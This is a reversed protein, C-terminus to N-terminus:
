SVNEWLAENIEELLPELQNKLLLDVGKAGRYERSQEFLENIRARDIIEDHNLILQKRLRELWDKQAKNWNHKAYIKQMAHEVRQEFPILADGLAARRIHALIGAAIM